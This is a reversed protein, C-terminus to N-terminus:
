RGGFSQLAFVRMIPRCGSKSVSFTEGDVQEENPLVASRVVNSSM